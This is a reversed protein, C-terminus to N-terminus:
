FHFQHPATKCFLLIDEDPKTEDVLIMNKISADRSKGKFNMVYCGNRESWRPDKTVLKVIKRDAHSVASQYEDKLNIRRNIENEPM